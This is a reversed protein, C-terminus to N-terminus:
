PRFEYRKVTIPFRWECHKSTNYYIAHIMASKQRDNRTAYHRPLRSPNGVWWWVKNPLPGWIAERLRGQAGNLNKGKVKNLTLIVLLSPSAIVYHLQKQWVNYVMVQNM